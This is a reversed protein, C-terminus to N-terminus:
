IGEQEGSSEEQSNGDTEGEKINLTVLSQFNDERAEEFIHNLNEEIVVRYHDTDILKKFDAEIRMIKSFAKKMQEDSVPEEQKFLKALLGCATVKFHGVFVAMDNLFLEQTLADVIFDDFRINLDNEKEEMVEVVQGELFNFHVTLANKNKESGAMLDLAQTILEEEIEDSKDKEVEVTENEM